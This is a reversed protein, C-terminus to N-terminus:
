GRGDRLGDERDVGVRKGALGSTFRIHMCAPNGHDTLSGTSTGNAAHLKPTKPKWHGFWPRNRRTRPSVSYGPERATRVPRSVVMRQPAAASRTAVEMHFRRGSGPAPAQQRAKGRPHRDGRRSSGLDMVSHKRASTRARLHARLHEHASTCMRTRAYTNTHARAREHARTRTRTRAQAHTHANNKRGDERLSVIINPFVRKSGSRYGYRHRSDICRAVPSGGEV